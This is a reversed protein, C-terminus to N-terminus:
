VSFGKNRLANRTTNEDALVGSNRLRNFERPVNNMTAMHAIVQDVTMLEANPDNLNDTFHKGVVGPVKIEKGDDIIPTEADTKAKKPRESRGGRPKKEEKAPQSPKQQSQTEASQTESLIPEPSQHQTTETPASTKETETQNNLRPNQNAM